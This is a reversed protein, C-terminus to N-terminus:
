LSTIQLFYVYHLEYMVDTIDTTESDIDIYHFM